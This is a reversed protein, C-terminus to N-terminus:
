RLDAATLPCVEKASFKLCEPYSGTPDMKVELNTGATVADEERGGLTQIRWAMGVLLFVTAALSFGIFTPDVYDKSYWQSIAIVLNVIAFFDVLVLLFYWGNITNGQRPVAAKVTAKPRQQRGASRPFQEPNSHFRTAARPKGRNKVGVHKRSNPVPMSAPKKHSHCQLPARSGEMQPNEGHSPAALHAYDYNHASSWGCDQSPPPFYPQKQQGGVPAGPHGFGTGHHCDCDEAVSPERTSCKAQLHAFDYNHASSWGCTNTNKMRSTTEPLDPNEVRTEAPAPPPPPLAQPAPPKSREGNPKRSSRKRPLRTPEACSVSIKEANIQVEYQKPSNDTAKKLNIAPATQKKKGNSPGQKTEAAPAKKKAVDTEEGITAFTTPKVNGDKVDDDGVNKEQMNEPMKSLNYEKEKDKSVDGAQQEQVPVEIRVPFNVRQFRVRRSQTHLAAHFKELTEFTESEGGDANAGESVYGASASGRVGGGHMSHVRSQGGFGGEIRAAGEAVQSGPVEYEARYVGEDEELTEDDQPSEVVAAETESVRIDAMAPTAWTSQQLYYGDQGGYNGLTSGQHMSSRMPEFSPAVVVPDPPRRPHIQIRAHHEMSICSDSDYHAREMSMPQQVERGSWRLIDGAGSPPLDLEGEAASSDAWTSNWQKHYSGVTSQTRAKAHLRDRNLSGHANLNGHAVFSQRKPREELVAGGGGKSVSVVVAVVLIFCLLLTVNRALSDVVLFEVLWIKPTKKATGMGFPLFDTLFISFIITFMVLGFVVQIKSNRPGLIVMAVITLFTLGLAVYMLDM